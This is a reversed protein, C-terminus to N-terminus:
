FYSLENQSLMGLLYDLQPSDKIDMPITEFALCCLSTSDNDLGSRKIIRAEKRGLKHHVTVVRNGITGKLGGLRHAKAM